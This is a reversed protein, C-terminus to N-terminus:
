HGTAEGIHMLAVTSGSKLGQYTVNKSKRKANNKKLAACMVTSDPQPTYPMM